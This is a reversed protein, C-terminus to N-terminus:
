EGEPTELASQFFPEVVRMFEDPKSSFVVHGANFVELRSGPIHEQVTHKVDPRYLPDQSGWVILTPAKIQSGRSRLDHGPDTFSRWIAAAVTAGSQTRARAQAHQSITEDQPTQPLMYRPVLFPMLLRSVFPIGLLRAFVRAHLPWNVFGGNNVLVLGRVHEPHTIALRAAAFGGVSNGIFFAPPLKLTTAIDELVDALTMASLTETTALGKSEGHWPWDIAITQYNKALSTIITDFDHHDHLTAHLLVVPVGEGQTQYVVDGLRTSVSPM